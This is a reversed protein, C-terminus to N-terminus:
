PVFDGITLQDLDIDYQGYLDLSDYFGPAGTSPGLKLTQVGEGTASVMGAGTTNNANLGFLSAGCPQATCHTVNITAKVASTRRNSPVGRLDVFLGGHVSLTNGSITYSVPQGIDSQSFLYVVAGYRNAIPAADFPTTSAAVCSRKWWRPVRTM